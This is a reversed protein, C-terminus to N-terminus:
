DEEEEEEEYSFIKSCKSCITVGTFVDEVLVGGCECLNGKWDLYNATHYEGFNGIFEAENWEGCKPCKKWIIIGGTREKMETETKSANFIAGCKRCKLVHDEKVPVLESSTRAAFRLKNIFSVMAIYHNVLEEKKLHHLEKGNNVFIDVAIEL